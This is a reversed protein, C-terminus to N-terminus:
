TPDPETRILPHPSNAKSRLALTSRYPMALMAPSMLPQTSGGLLCYATDPLTLAHMLTSPQTIPEPTTDLVPTAPQMVIVEVCWDGSRTMVRPLGGVMPNALSVILM